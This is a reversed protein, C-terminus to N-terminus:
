LCHVVVCRSNIAWKGGGSDTTELWNWRIIRESIDQLTWEAAVVTVNSYYLTRSGDVVILLDNNVHQDIAGGRCVCVCVKELVHKIPM